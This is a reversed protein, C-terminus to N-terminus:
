ANLNKPLRTFILFLLVNLGAGILMLNKFYFEDVTAHNFLNGVVFFISWPITLFLLLYEVNLYAAVLVVTLYILTKSLRIATSHIKVM